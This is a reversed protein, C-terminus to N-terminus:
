AEQTRCSPRSRTDKQEQALILIQHPKTTIVTELFFFFIFQHFIFCRQEHRWRTETMEVLFKDKNGFKNLPDNLTLAGNHTSHSSRYRSKWNMALPSNWTRIRIALKALKVFDQFVIGGLVLFNSKSITEQRSRDKLVVCNRSVRLIDYCKPSATQNNTILISGTM